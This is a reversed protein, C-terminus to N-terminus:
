ALSDLLAKAEVLDPTEFGETFWGYVPGLIAEAKQKDHRDAWFSALSTAARLELSRANQRRAVDLAQLFCAASATEDAPSGALLVQGRLRHLEAEWRHEHTQEVVALAEALSARAEDFHDVAMCAEALMALFYPRRIDVRLDRLSDLGQRIAALGEQVGGQAAVAWGRMVVGTARFHPAMDHEDCAAITEEGLSQTLVLDRRYQHLFSSFVLATIRTLPHALDEALARGEEARQVALDPYGLLWLCCGGHNRSCVGPDHGGYIFKHARHSEVNYLARGRDTHDRCNELRALHYSTTWAAHHAQLEFSKESDNDPIMLLDAALKEATVADGRTQHLHWLNWTVTFVQVPDGVKRALERARVYAREVDPSGWGKITMMVPGLALQLTLEQTLRERSEPLTRILELGRTLHAAAEAYAFREVARQGARRWYSIADEILGAETLHFALVEPQVEVVDPFRERLAEAVRAHLLQRKSRLLSQYATEQVLAHKFTYSTELASGRRFILEAGVLQELANQLPETDLPAVAALLERSFERGLVAAIQAIEKVAALRDLRAMLSDHLTTPIALPPLSGALEYRDSREALLGSELVTKTLEEVFLPVGDTRVVIQDTVVAPLPKDGSVSKALAVVQRRSLRNLTLVTAHAHGTWRPVFELRSTILVLVSLHQVRENLLDLVELTTPDMWHVDEYVVLVPQKVALGEVQDVLVKLTRQKQRQPTLMLPPYRDCTDVGLLGAILPVSDGLAAGSLGLLKELKDLKAESSDDRSFTAARELLGIIPYLASNTHYPSCYHILPTHLDAALRLRLAQVIRSKGIGAEGSLLVVQGEGEKAREWRDLLLAIEHERGVLPAIQEGRLAKFRSEIRSAGLVRWAQLPEAFGKLAVRGLDVYELLDRLLRQTGDAIVVTGPEALEQLRAALTPTEGIVREEQASGEGILDGVMVLGTAVGVRVRLVEGDTTRIRGVEDALELGARTAREADDEHAQPWGFYALVGDGLYKAIRGEWRAVITRCCAQYDGILAAADEPDLRGLLETSAVLDCFLVTLQRREAEPPRAVAGTTAHEAAEQEGLLDGGREQLEAIARILMRRHGVAHVGIEKLDEATLHPLSRADIENNQFGEAYRELGLSRLWEHVNVYSGSRAGYKDPKTIVLVVHADGGDPLRESAREPHPPRYGAPGSEERERGYEARVM